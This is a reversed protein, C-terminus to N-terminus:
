GFFGDYGEWSVFKLNTRLLGSDYRGSDMNDNPFLSGKFSM